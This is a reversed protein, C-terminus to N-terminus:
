ERDKLLGAIKDVAEDSEMIGCEVQASLLQIERMIEEDTM